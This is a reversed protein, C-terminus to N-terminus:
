MTGIHADKQTGTNLRAATLARHEAHAPSCAGLNCSHDIIIGCLTHAFAAIDSTLSRGHRRVADPGFELAQVNVLDYSSFYSIRCPISIHRRPGVNLTGNTNTKPPEETRECLSQFKPSVVGIALAARHFRLM